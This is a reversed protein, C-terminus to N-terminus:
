LAKCTKDLTYTGDSAAVFIAMSGNVPNFGILRSGNSYFVSVMAPPEDDPPASFDATTEFPNKLIQEKWEGKVFRLVKAQSGAENWVAFAYDNDARAFHGGEYGDFDFSLDQDETLIRLENENENVLAVGSFS